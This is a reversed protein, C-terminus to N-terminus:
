KRRWVSDRKRSLQRAVNHGIRHAARDVTVPWDADTVEAIVEGVGRLRVVIQCSKDIGGKPGNIDSLYVDANSVREGFRALAFSLRRDLHDKISPDLALGNSHLKWNM